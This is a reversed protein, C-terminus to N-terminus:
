ADHGNGPAKFVLLRLPLDGSPTVKFPVGVPVVVIHGARISSGSGDLVIDGRGSIVYFIRNQDPFRHLKMGKTVLMLQGLQNSASVVTETDFGDPTETLKKQFVDLIDIVAPDIERFASSSSSSKVPAASGAAGTQAAGSGGAAQQAQQKAYADRQASTPGFVKSACGGLLALSALSVGVSVRSIRM